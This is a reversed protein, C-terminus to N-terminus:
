AGALQSYLTEHKLVMQAPSFQELAFRRGADGMRVALAPDDLLAGLADALARPDGVDVLFGNEGDRVLDINGGVRTCVVPRANFMYEIVANSLGETESCLVCAYAAQIFRSPDDARGPFSCQGAIGLQAALHLLEGKYSSTTRGAGDGGVIVCNVARGRDHLCSVATILDEIRKLPRLNAVLVVSPAASSPAVSAGAASEDRSFGNFIVAMKRRPIGESAAVVDVVASANAIVRDVFRANFRLAKLIGPTYWFGLDRRALVIKVGALWLLPPLCVSVDNLFLHAVRFGGARAWCTFRLLKWWSAPSKMSRIDLNRVNISPQAALFKSARLTVITPEFRARDLKQFLLWFQTETGGRSPGEFSDICFLVRSRRVTSM